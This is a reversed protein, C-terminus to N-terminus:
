FATARNLQAVPGNLIPHLNLSFQRAPCIISQWVSCLSYNMHMIKLSGLRYNKRNSGNGKDQKM